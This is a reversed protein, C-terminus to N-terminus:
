DASRRRTCSFSPSRWSCCSSDSRGRVSTPWRGQGAPAADPVAILAFIMARQLGHGKSEEKAQVGDDISLTTGLEFLKSVEPRAGQDRRQGGRLSARSTRSSNFPTAAETTAPENFQGMLAALQETAKHFAADGEAMDKLARHLLRGFLTTTKTGSEQGLDRM